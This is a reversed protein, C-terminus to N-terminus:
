WSLILTVAAGTAPLAVSWMTRNRARSNPTVGVVNFHHETAVVDVLLQPDLRRRLQGRYDAIM